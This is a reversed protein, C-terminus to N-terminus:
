LAKSKLENIQKRIVTEELQSFIDPYQEKFSKLVLRCRQHSEKKRKKVDARQSYEQRKKIYEPDRARKKIREQVEPKKLYVDRYTKNIRKTEEPTKKMKIEGVKFPVKMMQGKEDSILLTTSRANFDAPLDCVIKAM